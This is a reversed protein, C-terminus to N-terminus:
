EIGKAVRAPAASSASTSPSVKRNVMTATLLPVKFFPPDSTLGPSKKAVPSVRVQFPASSALPVSSAKVTLALSPVTSEAVATWTFTSTAATL